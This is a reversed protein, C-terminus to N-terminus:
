MTDSPNSLQMLVPTITVWGWYAPTDISYLHIFCLINIGYIIHCLINNNQEQM